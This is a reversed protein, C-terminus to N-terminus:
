AQMMARADALSDSIRKRFVVAISLLAMGLVLYTEPEPVTLGFDDIGYVQGDLDAAYQISIGVRDVDALDGVFDGSALSSAGVANSAYGEWGTASGMSVYYTAWNDSILSTDINYFWVSGGDGQFYVTLADPAGGSGEGLAGAYFDFQIGGIAMGELGYDLDGALNSGTTFIVDEGPSFDGSTDANIEVASEGGVTQPDPTVHTGETPDGAYRAEIGWGSFPNGVSGDQVEIVVTAKALGVSGFMALAVLFSMKKMVM